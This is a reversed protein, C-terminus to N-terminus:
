SLVSLPVVPAETSDGEEKKYLLGGPITQGRDNETFRKVSKLLLVTIGKVLPASSKKQPGRM